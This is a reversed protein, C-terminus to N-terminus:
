SSEAEASKLGKHYTIRHIFVRISSLLITSVIFFYIIDVISSDTIIHNEVVIQIVAAAALGRAFVSNILSRDEKDMKRTIVISLNRVLLIAFALLGGILMARTDRINLLLGIYVFFFTKLFFSIQSYFLHEESSLATLGLEGKIAVEQDKENRTTIGKIISTIQKANTLVIGFFLSAIAGNGGLYETIFYIILLFAITSMFSKHEKFVKKDFFIWVVAGIIGVLGAVAFLSVIQSFVSQFSFVNLKILQMVTLAFVITFVDTLASELALITHTEGKPRVQKLLPMVFASSVGGLAFGILMAIMFDFKLILLICFITLSSIIFNFFAISSGSVLGKAFSRLDISLAGEFLLFLLAFATFIPAFSAINAPDAWGLVNPGIMFGLIVLLLLDPVGFKKFIFEALFGFLVILGVGLLITTIEM